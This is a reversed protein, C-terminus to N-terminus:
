HVVSQVHQWGDNSSSLALHTRHLEGPLPSKYARAQNGRHKRGIFVKGKVTIFGYSPANCRRPRTLAELSNSFGLTTKSVGVCYGVHKPIYDFSVWDWSAKSILVNMGGWLWSVYLVQTLTTAWHHCCPVDRDVKRRWWRWCTPLWRPVQWQMTRLRGGTSRAHNYRWEVEAVFFFSFM